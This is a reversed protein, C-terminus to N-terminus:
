LKIAIITKMALIAFEVIGKFIRKYAPTKKDIRKKTEILIEYWYILFKIIQDRKYRRKLSLPIKIKVKGKKPRRMKPIYREHTKLYEEIKKDIDSV